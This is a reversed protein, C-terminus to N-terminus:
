YFVLLILMTNPCYWVCLLIMIIMFNTTMVVLLLYHSYKTYVAKFLLTTYFLLVKLLINWVLLIMFSIYLMHVCASGNSSVVEIIYM